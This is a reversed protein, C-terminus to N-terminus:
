LTVIIGDILKILYQDIAISYINVYQLPDLKLKM